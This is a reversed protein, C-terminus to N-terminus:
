DAGLNILSPGFSTAMESVVGVRVGKEPLRRLSEPSMGWKELTGPKFNEVLVDKALLAFLFM